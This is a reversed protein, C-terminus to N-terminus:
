PLGLLSLLDRYYIGSLSEKKKLDKMKDQFFFILSDKGM